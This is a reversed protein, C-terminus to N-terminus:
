ITFDYKIIITTFTESLRNCGIFTADISGVCGPLGLKAYVNMSSELEEGQLPKIFQKRFSNAFVDYFEQSFPPLKRKKKKKKALAAEEEEQAAVECPALASLKIM